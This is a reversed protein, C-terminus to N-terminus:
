AEVAQAESQRLARTMAKYSAWDWTVHDLLAISRATRAKWYCSPCIGHRPQDSGVRTIVAECIECFDQDRELQEPDQVSLVVRFADHLELALRDLEELIQHVRKCALGRRDVPIHRSWDDAEDSDWAPLGRLAASETATSDSSGSREGGGGSPFGDSRSSIAGIRIVEGLAIHLPVGTDGVKIPSDLTQVTKHMRELMKARLETQGRTLGTM